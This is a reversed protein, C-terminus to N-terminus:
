LWKTVLDITQQVAKKYPPYLLKASTIGVRQEVVARENTFAMFGYYGHAKGIGSTNVGGFPLNPHIFPLTTDNICTTGASTQAILHATASDRQSFINIALPKPRRCIHAIVTQIDSYPAIPLIPGFIEEDMVPATEPVDRLLTASLYNDADDMIGGLHVTAGSAITQELLHKLRAYHRANVPRSFDPNQQLAAVDGYMRLFAASLEQLLPEYVREHVFLKNISMCSQGCNIFKGWIIKEAADKLNASEDVIVPNVGGLELTVSTLNDAAARMVRKGVAPSGTFFIHDFPLACLAEAVTHDGQVLAIENASFLSDLMKQMLAATNPTMESPKVVASCGAAIASVLPGLTLMFPFNWPALILAVGKPEYVIRSSTGMMLLGSSVTKPKMWASLEAAAHDIEALVPKIDSIDVEAAPKRFDAYIAAQIEVRHALIWQSITKLKAIRQSATTNKVAHQHAQQMALLAAFSEYASASMFLKSHHTALKLAIYNNSLLYM